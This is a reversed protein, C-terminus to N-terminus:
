AMGLVYCLFVLTALIVMRFAVDDLQKVNSNM